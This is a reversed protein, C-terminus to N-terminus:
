NVPRAVCAFQLYGMDSFRGLSLLNFLKFKTSGSRNIGAVSELHFGGREFLGPLSARTFFRLHTRDLIGEDVYDWRGRLVLDLVTFFERVNPISAVVCGGDAVHPRLQRLLAEPDMVHELVDNLVIADFKQDQMRALAAVADGTLVLDLRARASEAAEPDMEVGTVSLGEIRSKLAAGFAGAGCGIDLVRRVSDPVFPQMEPRAHTFYSEPM